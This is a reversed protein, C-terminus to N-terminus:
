KSLPRNVVKQMDAHCIGRSHTYSEAIRIQDQRFTVLAGSELAITWYHDHAGGEILIAYGDGLPTRMPILEKLEVIM